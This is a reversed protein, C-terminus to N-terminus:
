TTWRPSSSWGAPRRTSRSRCCCPTRAWRRRRPRGSGAPLLHVFPEDGYAKEYVARVDDVTSAPAPRARQRHGPHGPVDAGAGPHVVGDGACGRGRVPEAGDGPHAPARRRRRLRSASGMVESGLLNAKPSKGAGPRAPRPWWWWTRSSWGPPWRRRWRWRRRRDPLLRARRDAQRRAARGPREAARAARLALSGPHEGGYFQEWAAPDTLRHDAGCDIVVTDAGCSPPSSTRSATRCPSSSRTTAPWSRRRPRDRHDPRGAPAPAAPAAGLRDGASSHATLAGIEVEPHGLLLRLLEGGAYGSAGAVAVRYTM